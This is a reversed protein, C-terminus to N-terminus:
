WVVGGDDSLVKYKVGVEKTFGYRSVPICSSLLLWQSQSPHTGYRMNMLYDEHNGRNLYVDNPYLLLLSFLVLVVEVSFPGRDVFDGNFVFPNESSPLNNQLLCLRHWLDAVILWQIGVCQSLVKHLVVLLDDFKGHIDGLALYFILREPM